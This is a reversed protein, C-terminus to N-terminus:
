TTLCAEWRVQVQRTNLSEDMAMVGVDTPEALRAPEEEMNELGNALIM